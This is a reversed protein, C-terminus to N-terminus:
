DEKWLGVKRFEQELRDGYIPGLDSGFAVRVLAVYVMAWTWDHAPRTAWTMAHAYEHAITGLTVSSPSFM